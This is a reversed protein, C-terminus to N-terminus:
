QLYAEISILLSEGLMLPYENLMEQDSETWAGINRSPVGDWSYYIYCLNGDVDAIGYSEDDWTTSYKEGLYIIMYNNKNILDELLSIENESLILQNDLDNVVIVKYDGIGSINDMNAEAIQKAQIKGNFNIEKGLVFVDTKRTTTLIKSIRDIDSINENKDKNINIFILFGVVVVLIIIIVILLGKKQLINRM